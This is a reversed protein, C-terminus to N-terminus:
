QGFLPTNGPIIISWFRLGFLFSPGMKSIHGTLPAVLPDSPDASGGSIDLPARESM